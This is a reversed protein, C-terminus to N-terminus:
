EQVYFVGLKEAATQLKKDYTWLSIGTLLTSALLHVDIL